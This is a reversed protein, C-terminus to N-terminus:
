IQSTNSRGKTKVSYAQNCYCRVKKRATDCLAVRVAVDHKTSNRTSAIGSMYHLEKDM